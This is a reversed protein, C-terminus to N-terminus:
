NSYMWVPTASMGNTFTATSVVTGGNPLTYKANQLYDDGHLTEVFVGAGTAEASNYEWKNLSVSGQGDGWNAGAGFSSAGYRIKGSGTGAMFYDFSNSLLPTTTEYIATGLAYDGTASLEVGYGAWLFNGTPYAGGGMSAGAFNTKTNV